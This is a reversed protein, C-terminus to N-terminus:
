IGFQRIAAQLIFFDPRYIEETQLMLCLIKIIKQSYRRGLYKNLILEKQNMDFIERIEVCGDFSLCAAFLFCMGLSFVDSKYTNHKVQYAKDRLGKFLIPSMYLESGRVRQVVMGERQMVRIDGFDCLKYIGNSILINQPKIDRHTIHMKQLFSLTTILQMMINSLEPETYYRKYAARENIEKEFDRECLEMLEFYQFEHGNPITLNGYLNVIGKYNTLKTFERIAENRHQRAKLGELDRLVEKKLAYLKNNVMWIVKYIKGFTGEGIENLVKFEALNLRDNPERINNNLPLINNNIIKQQPLIQSNIPAAPMNIKQILSINTNNITNGIEVKPIVNINNNTPNVIPNINNNVSKIVPNINNNIPNVIPNINNNVPNVIPNINNNVSKVMPNINNNIPNVIPNINNNAPNILPNINNNIPNVMPNINNNVPNVIPNITNNVSKEMPNINNNAPNVLPNINNNVPKILPNINNNVPNVLPNINNNTPNLMPNINNNGPNILPNINNNTPNVLPNINNNISKIVPNINNNIAFSINTPAGNISKITKQNVAMGNIMDPNKINSANVMNPMQVISITNMPKANNNVNVNNIIINQGNSIINPSKIGNISNITNKNMVLNYMINSKYINGNILNQNIPINNVRGNIFTNAQILNNTTNKNTFTKTIYNQNHNPIGRPPNYATFTNFNKQVPTNIGNTFTNPRMQIPTHYRKISNNTQVVKPQNIVNINNYILSKNPKQFTPQINSNLQNLFEISKVTPVLSRQKQFNMM